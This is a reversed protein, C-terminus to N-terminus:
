GRAVRGTTLASEIAEAADRGPAVLTWSGSRPGGDFAANLVLVRGKRKAVSVSALPLTMPRPDGRFASFLLYMGGVLAGALVGALIPVGYATQLAATRAPGSLGPELLAVQGSWSLVGGALVLATCVAVFSGVLARYHRIPRVVLTVTDPDVHLEAAGLYSRPLNVRVAFGDTAISNM